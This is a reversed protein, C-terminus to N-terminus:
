SPCHALSSTVPLCPQTSSSLDHKQVHSSVSHTQYDLGYLPRWTSFFLSFLACLYMWLFRCLRGQRLVLVLNQFTTLLPSQKTSFLFSLCSLSTLLCHHSEYPHNEGKGALHLRLCPNHGSCLCFFTGFLFLCPLLEDEIQVKLRQLVQLLFFFGHRPIQHSTKWDTAQHNKSGLQQITYCSLECQKLPPVRKSDQRGDSVRPAPDPSCVISQISILMLFIESVNKTNTTYRCFKQRQLLDKTNAFESVSVRNSLQM